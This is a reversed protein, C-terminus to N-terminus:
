YRAFNQTVWVQTGNTFVGIGVHTFPGVMNAYHGPSAELSSQAWFIDPASAINEGWQRWGAPLMANLQDGPRHEFFGGAAMQQSWDRSIASITPDLGIPSLGANARVKNIEGLVYAELDVTTQVQVVTPEPTPEATPEPTPETAPEPTPEATPEAILTATAEPIATPEPLATAPVGTSEPEVDASTAVAVAASPQPTSTPKLTPTAAATPQPTAGPQPTTAPAPTVIATPVARPATTPVATAGPKPDADSPLSLISQTAVSRAPENTGSRASNAFFALVICATVTAAMKLARRMAPSTRPSSTM